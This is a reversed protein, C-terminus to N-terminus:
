DFQFARGALLPAVAAWLGLSVLNAVGFFTGHGLARHLGDALAGSPLLVELRRLALPFSTAPIVFGSLLLLVLYLGNAAALNVEARLRGALLLGIGSFGATALVLAGFALAIGGFGGHPRWGLAVSAGGIIVVQLLEVVLVGVLKSAVLGRRTLPTVHLRRLVGYSRDFGTAISLSVLSTSMVCLAIIGPALFDVRHRGPVRVFTTATFFVLLLLPIGITLLLTEGRRLTMKVEAVSQARWASV